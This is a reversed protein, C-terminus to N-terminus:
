EEVIRIADEHALAKMGQFILVENSKIEGVVIMESTAKLVKVYRKIAQNDKAIFVYPRGDSLLAKLPISVGKITSQNFVVTVLEGIPIRDDEFDIEVLFLRTESDPDKSISKIHGTIIRNDVSIVCADGIVITSLVSSPVGVSILQGEKRVIIIPEGPATFSKSEKLVKVITGTHSSEVVADEYNDFARQYNNSLIKMNQAALVEDAMAAEYILTLHDFENKSLAGQEFLVKGQNYQKLNFSLMEMAKSHTEESQNKQLLLNDKTWSLDETSLSYLPMGETVIEGEEVFITEIEGGTKNGYEVYAAGKVIGIGEYGVSFEKEEATICRVPKLFESEVIEADVKACATLIIAIGMIVIMMVKKM